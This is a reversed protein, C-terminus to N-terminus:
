RRRAPEGKVCVTFRGGMAQDCVEISQRTAHRWESSTGPCDRRVAQQWAILAARRAKAFAADFM